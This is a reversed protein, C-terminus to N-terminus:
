RPCVSVPACCTNINIKLGTYTMGPIQFHVENLHPALLAYLINQPKGHLGAEFLVQGHFAEPFHSEHVNVAKFATKGGLFELPNGSFEEAVGHRLNARNVLGQELAKVPAVSIGTLTFSASLVLVSLLFYYKIKM